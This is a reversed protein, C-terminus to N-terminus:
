SHGTKGEVDDAVPAFATFPALLNQPLCSPGYWTWGSLVILDDEFEALFGANRMQTLVGVVSPDIPSVVPRSGAAPARTRRTYRSIVDSLM